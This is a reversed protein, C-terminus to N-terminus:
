ASCIKKLIKALDYIKCFSNFIKFIRHFVLAFQKNYIRYIIRIFHKSSLNDHYSLVFYM